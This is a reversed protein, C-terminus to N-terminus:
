RQRGKTRRTASFYRQALVMGSLHATLTLRYDGEHDLWIGDPFTAVHDRVDRPDEFVLTIQTEAVVEFSPDDPRVRAIQLKLPVVGNGDVVQVWITFPQTPGPVAALDFVDLVGHITAKLLSTHREVRDCLVLALCTPRVAM